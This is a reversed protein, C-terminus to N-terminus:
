KEMTVPDSVRSASAPLGNNELREYLLNRIELSVKRRYTYGGTLGAVVCPIENVLDAWFIGHTDDAPIQNADQWANIAMDQLSILTAAHRCFFPNAPLAVLLLHALLGTDVPPNDGDEIDDIMRAARAIIRLYADADANGNAAIEIAQEVPTKM